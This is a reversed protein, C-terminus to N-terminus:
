FPIRESDDDHEDDGSWPLKKDDAGPAHNKITKKPALEHLDIANIKKLQAESLKDKASVLPLVTYSTNDKTSGQRSVKIKTTELPYEDNIDKLQNYITIGFEWIKAVLGGNEDVIINVKFRLGAGPEDPACEVGKGNVWKKYTEQIDGVVIGRVVDGDKLRLFSSPGGEDRSGTHFEKFQMKKGKAKM